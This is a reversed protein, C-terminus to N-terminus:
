YTPLAATPPTFNATYRALGKTIRFDDIYGNLYDAQATQYWRGLTIPKITSTELNSTSGTAVSNGNIYMVVSSGNRVLAFHYWTSTTLVGTSSSFENVGVRGTNISGDTKIYTSTMGDSVSTSNTWVVAGNSSINNLYIWCEVTFNGFWASIAVNSPTLLSDGNGDFALSGTGYKKVSTSVQANGVTELNNQMALDPIGANTMNALFSTNTVATSPTTPNTSPVIATGKIVRADSIYGTLRNGGTDDSGLSLVATGAFLPVVAVTTTGAVGNLYPTFTIGSRVLAIYQWTNLTNTGIPVDSYTWTAGNNSINYVWTGSSNLQIVYSAQNGSGTGKAILTQASGSTATVYVWAGITFDSSDLQLAANNPVTLYDGSGDFYGSGGIVAPDYTATPNFPSFRQISINGTITLSLNNSSNDIFRNSQFTLLQTGSVATLPVTPPTFATTYVATGKVIRFNSLYGPITSNGSYRKGIYATTVNTAYNTTDTYSAVSVGNLYITGVGSARVYACHNWQNLPMPTSTQLVTGSANAWSLQTADSGGNYNWSFSWATNTRTDIIYPNAGSGLNYFMYAWCEVTFDATGFAGGAGLTTTIVNGSTGSDGFYSSWNPGYPSFSGQTTNGNRTITFNNTSSDLFTNNQAGNTGDGNLLLSVDYFYPDAPAAGQTSAASLLDRVPM